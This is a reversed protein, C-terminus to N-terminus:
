FATSPAMARVAGCGKGTLAITGGTPENKKRARTFFNCTSRCNYAPIVGATCIYTSVRLLANSRIDRGNVSYISVHTHIGHSLSGYGHQRAHAAQRSTVNCRTETCRLTCFSCRGQSLHVECGFASYEGKEEHFLRIQQPLSSNGHLRM